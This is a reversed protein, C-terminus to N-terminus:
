RLPSSDLPFIMDHESTRRVVKASETVFTGDSFEFRVTSSAGLRIGEPVVFGGADSADGAWAGFEPPIPLHMLTSAVPLVEGDSEVRVGVLSVDAKGANELHASLTASGDDNVVLQVHSVDVSVAAVSTDASPSRTAGVVSEQPLVAVSGIVILVAAARAWRAGNMAMTRQQLGIM